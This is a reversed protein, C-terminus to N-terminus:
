SDMRAKLIGQKVEHGADVLTDAIQGMFNMHSYGLKPNVVLIKFTYCLRALSIFSFLLLMVGLKRGAVKFQQLDGFQAALEVTRVLKQKPTFPRQSLLDRMRDAATRYRPDNMVANLSENFVNGHSLHAKDVVVGTVAPDDLQDYKWIFTINPH